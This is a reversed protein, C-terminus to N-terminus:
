PSVEAPATAIRRGDGGGMADHVSAWEPWIDAWDARMHRRTARGQLVVELSVCKSPPVGRAVWNLLCQASCGMRGAVAAPGGADRIAQRLIEQNNM